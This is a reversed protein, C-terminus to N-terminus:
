SAGGEYQGSGKKRNALGRVDILQSLIDSQKPHHQAVDASHRVPLQRQLLATGDMSPDEGPVGGGGDSRDLGAEGHPQVPGLGPGFIAIKPKETVRWAARRM